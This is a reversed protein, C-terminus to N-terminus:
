YILFVILFCFVFLFGVTLHPLSDLYERQENAWLDNFNTPIANGSGQLVIVFVYKLFIIIVVLHYFSVVYDQLRRVTRYNNAKLRKVATSRNIEYKEQFFVLFYFVSFFFFDYFVSVDFEFLSHLKEYVKVVGSWIYHVPLMVYQIFRLVFSIFM